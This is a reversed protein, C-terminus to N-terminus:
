KILRFKYNDSIYRWKIHSMCKVVNSHWHDPSSAYVYDWIPKSKDCIRANKNWYCSLKDITDYKGLYRNNLTKIIWYIWSRANLFQSTAWSDTNWVNWVNYPTKLNRWLWTEALWICMVFTPDINWDLSESVWIDWNRFSSTAYKNILYKQREIETDWKLSFVWKKEKKNKFEYWLKEKFDNYYKFKYKEPLFKFKLNYLSLYNLPDVHNKDLYVEFHLHPWTTM